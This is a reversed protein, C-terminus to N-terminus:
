RGEKEAATKGGKGGCLKKGRGDEVGEEDKRGEPRWRKGGVEQGEKRGGDKRRKGGVEQGEKRGGDKRRKGGVEQGERNGKRHLAHLVVAGDVDVDVEGLAAEVRVGAM